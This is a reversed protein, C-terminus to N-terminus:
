RGDHHAEQQRAPRREDFLYRQFWRLMPERIPEAVDDGLTTHDAGAVRMLEVTDRHGAHYLRLAHRIPILDDNEGHILLTPVNSRALRQIVDSEDPDFDAYKGALDIVKQYHEDSFSTFGIARGFDPVVDRMTTFTSILVLAEIREDRDAIQMGTAAGFSVAAIGVPPQLLGRRDVENLVKIMDRSEKVGYTSWDGTSHGHGRQDVLITRYGESAFVRAWMLYRQQNVTDYFGPILCITGRPEHTHRPQDDTPEFVPGDDGELVVPRENSPDIVWVQLSIDLEPDPEVRFRHDIVTGDLALPEDTSVEKLSDGYNPSRVIYRGLITDCGSTLGVLGMLAIASFKEFASTPM